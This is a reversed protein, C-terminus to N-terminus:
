AWAPMLSALLVQENNVTHDRLYPEDYVYEEPTINFEDELSLSSTAGQHHRAKLERIQQAAHDESIKGEKIQRFLLDILNDM